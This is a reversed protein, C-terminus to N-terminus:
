TNIADLCRECLTPHEAAEGVRISYNWCRECKAGEAKEVSIVLQDIKESGQRDTEMWYIQSVIFIRRLESLNAKLIRSLESDQTRIYIKADLSSGILGLNRKKEVPPMIANRVERIRQWDLFSKQSLEKAADEPLIFHSQHVSKL